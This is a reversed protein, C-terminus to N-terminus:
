IRIAHSAASPNSSAFVLAVASLGALFLLSAVVKAGGRRGDKAKGRGALNSAM